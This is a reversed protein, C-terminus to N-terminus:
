MSEWIIDSRISSGLKNGIEPPAKELGETTSRIQSWGIMRLCISLYLPNVLDQFLVQPGRKAGLLVVPNVKEWKGLEGVVVRQMCRHSNSRKECVVTKVGEVNRKGRHWDKQPPGSVDRPPHTSICAWCQDYRSCLGLVLDIQVLWNPGSGHTFLLGSRHMFQFSIPCINRSPIYKPSLTPAWKHANFYADTSRDIQISKYLLERQACGIYM